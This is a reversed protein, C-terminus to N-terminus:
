TKMANTNKNKLWNSFKYILPVIILLAYASLFLLMKTSDHM